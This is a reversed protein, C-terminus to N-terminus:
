TLAIFSNKFQGKSSSFIRWPASPSRYHFGPYNIQSKNQGANASLSQFHSWLPALGIQDLGIMAEHWRMM